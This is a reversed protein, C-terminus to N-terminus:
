REPAAHGSTRAAKGGAALAHGRVTPSLLPRLAQGSARVRGSATTGAPTDALARVTWLVRTTATFTGLAALLWLAVQAVAYAPHPVFGEMRHGVYPALALALALIALRDARQILGECGYVGLAEGRARAYSTALSMVLAVLAALMAPSGAYYVAFGGLIVGDCVRDVTSDLFAGAKSALGKSRALHGDVVDLTNGVILLVAAAAFHGTAILLGTPFGLVLSALTLHNPKLRSRQVLRLLPALLWYYFGVFLPGLLRRGAGQEKGPPLQEAGLLWLCLYTAFPILAAALFCILFALDRAAARSALLANM